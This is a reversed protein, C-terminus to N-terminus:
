WVTMGRERAGVIIKDEGADGDDTLHGVDTINMVQRVSYGLYQLSRRLTDEFLFTRMNGIHQSNYVTPGCCYMRVMGDPHVPAFEERTRGMTNYLQLPM